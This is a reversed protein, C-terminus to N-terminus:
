GADLRRFDAFEIGYVEKLGPLGVRRQETEPPGGLVLQGAVPALDSVTELNHRGATEPTVVLADRDQAPSAQLVAIGRPELEDRLGAVLEDTDTSVVPEDSLYALLAGTYEPTLDLEGSELAPFVIERSGLNLRTEVTFGQQALVQAYMNALILQESFNTSGVVITGPAGGDAGAPAATGQSLPSDGATCAGALLALVALATGPLLSRLRVM